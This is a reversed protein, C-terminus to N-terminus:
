SQKQLEQPPSENDSGQRRRLVRNVFRQLDIRLDDFQCMLIDVGSAELAELGAEVSGASGILGTEFGANTDVMQTESLGAWVAAGSDDMATRFRQILDRDRNALLSEHRGRAASDTEELVIFANVAVRLSRGERAASSKVNRIFPSLEALPMGNVFLVDGETAALRIASESHGSIWLPPHPLQRPRAALVADRFEYHKGTFSFSDQSWLGKMCHVFEEARRYRGDHDLMDVGCSDFEQKWWGCVINVATRGESVWDLSSVM